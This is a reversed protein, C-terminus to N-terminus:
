RNGHFPNCDSNQTREVFKNEIEQDFPSSDESMDKRKRSEYLKPSKEKQQKSSRQQNTHRIHMICFEAVTTGFPTILNENLQNLVIPSRIWKFFVKAHQRYSQQQQAHYQDQEDKSWFTYNGPCINGPYMNLSFVFQDPVNWRENSLTSSTM